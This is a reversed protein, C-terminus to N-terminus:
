VDEIDDSGDVLFFDGDIPEQPPAVARQNILKLLEDASKGKLDEHTLQPQAAMEPPQGQNSAVASHKMIQTQAAPRLVGETKSRTAAVNLYLEAAAKLTKVDDGEACEVLKDAIAEAKELALSTKALNKERSLDGYVVEDIQRAVRGKNIEAVFWEANELRLCQEKVGKAKPLYALAQAPDAGNQRLRLYQEAFPELNALVPTIYNM